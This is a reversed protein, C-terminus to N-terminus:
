KEDKGLKLGNLKGISFCCCWQNGASWYFRQGNAWLLSWQAKAALASSDDAGAATASSRRKWCRQVAASWQANPFGERDDVHCCCGYWVEVVLLLLLRRVLRRGVGAAAPPPREDADVAELALMPLPDQSVEWQDNGAGGKEMLCVERPGVILLRKSGNSPLPQLFPGGLGMPTSTNVRIPLSQKSAEIKLSM